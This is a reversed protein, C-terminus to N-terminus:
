SPTLFTFPFDLRCLEGLMILFGTTCGIVAGTTTSLGDAIQDIGPNFMSSALPSLNAMSAIVAVNLM